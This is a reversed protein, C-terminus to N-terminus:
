RTESYGSNKGALPKATFQQLPTEHSASITEHILKAARRPGTHLPRQNHKLDAENNM